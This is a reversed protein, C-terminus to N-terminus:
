YLEKGEFERFLREVSNDSFKGGRREILEVRVGSGPDRRLFVQRIGEDVLVPTDSKGGSKELREMARDMDDVAFAVHQVGAGFHEIFRSVQSEPTTGQILVVVAAGAMMVASVMATSRGQTTRKEVLRFGLNLRYWDIATELDAVAVAIHDVSVILSRVPDISEDSMSERREVGVSMDENSNLGLCPVGSPPTM